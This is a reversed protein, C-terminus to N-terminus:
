AVGGEGNVWEVAASFEYLEDDVVLLPMFTVGLAELEEIEAQNTGDIVHLDYDIGASDLKKKLIKCRPCGNSYLVVKNYGNKTM